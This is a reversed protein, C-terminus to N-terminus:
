ATALARKLTRPEAAHLRLRLGRRGAARTSPLAACLRAAAADPAGRRRAAARRQWSRTTSWCTSAAAPSTSGSRPRRQAGAGAPRRGGSGAHHAARDHRLRHREHARGLHAGHGQRGARSSRRSRCTAPRPCARRARRARRQAAGARRRGDVDLDPDDIRQALDEVRISCSPAARTSCCRPSRPRSSSSRAARRLTAACCPWARGDANIPDARPRIVDQGHVDEASAVDDRSRAAPSRRRTSTSSTASSACCARCAAPRTSTSWTTSARVAQPRGAGAGRPRAADFEDLDIAIGARGAIATLHISATPRAASRRCCSWARQPVSGADHDREPAPRRRDAMAAACAAADGRGLAVREAHPAPISARWPLTLGLAEAICAMTSATGM